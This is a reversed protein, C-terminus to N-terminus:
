QIAAARGLFLVPFRAARTVRRSRKYPYIGPIVPIVPITFGAFDSPRLDLEFAFDLETQRFQRELLHRVACGDLQDTVAGGIAPLRCRVWSEASWSLDM